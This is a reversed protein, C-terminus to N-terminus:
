EVADRQRAPDLFLGAERQGVVVDLLHAGDALDDLQHVLAHAHSCPAVLSRRTTLSVAAAGRKRGSASNSAWPRSGRLRTANERSDSRSQASKAPRTAASALAM